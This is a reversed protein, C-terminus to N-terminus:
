KKEKKVVKVDDIIMGKDVAKMMDYLALAAVSAGTLAEMEVGTKSDTSVECSVHVFNRGLRFEVAVRNLPLPHCLPILQATQKAAQIGAVRAVCLADGKKLTQDKLARITAPACRLVGEAIATRHQVPKGGVDVMSAAGQEDLHSFKLPAKMIRDRNL